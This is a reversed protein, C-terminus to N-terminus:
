LGGHVEVSVEASTRCHVCSPQVPRRRGDGPDVPSHEVADTIFHRARGRDNAVSRVAPEWRVGMAAALLEQHQIAYKLVFM